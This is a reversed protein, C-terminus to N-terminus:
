LMSKVLNVGGMQPVLDLGMESLITPAIDSLIGIPKLQCLEDYGIYSGSNERNAYIFPVPNFSHEKSPNGTGPDIMEDCNGHDSAIFVLYNSSLLIPVVRQLQQDINEVASIAADLKGSHGVMDGNAINAVIFDFKGTAGIIEDAIEKAKMQPFLDYSKVKESQILKNTQGFFEDKKGGALFYTVHAFKETESVHFQTMGSKSLIEPMPNTLPNEDKDNLDINSFLPIAAYNDDYTTMTFFSKANGEKVINPTDEVFSRSLEIARDARYNTFIFVDDDLNAQFKAIATPKIFEDTENRKYAEEIADQLSNAVTQSKGIIAQLALNVRDYNKDRDMAYYRGALSAIIAGDDKFEDIKEKYINITKEGVDRGDAILHIYVKKHPFRRLITKNLIIAHDIHGHVAGDSAMTIIHVFGSSNNIDTFLKEFSARKSLEENKLM